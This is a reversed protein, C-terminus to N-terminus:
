DWWMPSYKAIIKFLLERDRKSCKDYSELASNTRRNCWIDSHFDDRERKLLEICIKIPQVIRKNQDECYQINEYRVLVKELKALLLINIYMYDWDKDNWIINFYYRLNAIGVKFNILWNNIAKIM